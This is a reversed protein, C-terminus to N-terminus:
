MDLRCCCMCNDMIIRNCNFCDDIQLNTDLLAIINRCKDFHEVVVVRCWLTSLIGYDHAVASSVWRPTFDGPRPHRDLGTSIPFFFTSFGLFFIIGRGHFTFFVIVLNPPPLSLPARPSWQGTFVLCLRILHDAKEIIRYPTCNEEEHKGRKETGEGREGRDM